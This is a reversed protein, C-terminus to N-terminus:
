REVNARLGQVLDFREFIEGFQVPVGALQRCVRIAPQGPVILIHEM